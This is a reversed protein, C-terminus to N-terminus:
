GPDSGRDREPITTLPQAAAGKFGRPGQGAGPGGRRLRSGASFGRGPGPAASAAAAGTTLAGTKPWRTRHAPPLIPARSPPMHATELFGSARAQSKSRHGPPDLAPVCPDSSQQAGGRATLDQGGASGPCQQAILDPPTTPACVPHGDSGPVRSNRGARRCPGTRAPSRFPPRRPAPQGRTVAHVPVRSGGQGPGAGGPTGRSGESGPELLM